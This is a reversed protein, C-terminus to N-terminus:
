GSGPCTKSAPRLQIMKQRITHLAVLLLQRAATPIIRDAYKLWIDAAVRVGWKVSQSHKKMKPGALSRHPGDFRLQRCEISHVHLLHDIRQWLDANKVPVMYGFFEWQWNNARWDHIGYQMGHRIHTSSSSVTVKSPQDLSELARIITLLELREGSVSPEVDVAQFRTIGCKDKLIFKWHGPDHSQGTEVLLTYHPKCEIIQSEM